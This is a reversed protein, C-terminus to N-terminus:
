MKPLRIQCVKARKKEEADEPLELAQASFGEFNHPGGLVLRIKAALQELCTFREICIQKIPVEPVPDGSFM